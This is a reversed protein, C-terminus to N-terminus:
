EFYPKCHAKNIRSLRNRKKILLSCEGVEAVEFPGQWIPDTRNAKGKLTESKVLIKQGVSYDEIKRKPKTRIDRQAANEKGKVIKDKAKAWLENQIEQLEKIYSNPTAFPQDSHIASILRPPRGFMMHHPSYGTATHTTTNFAYSALKLRMAWQTDEELDTDTARIFESLRQHTKEVAGNAQPHGLATTIRAIGFYNAVQTMVEGCLNRGNDSLLERPLGYCLILDEVLARAIEKASCDILACFKTFKSFEDQITLGYLKCNNPYKFPGIVDYAIKENPNNCTSTIALPLSRNQRSHKSKQCQDCKAIYERIKERLKPINFYFRIAAETANCGRHGAWRGAHMESIIQNIREDDTVKELDRGQNRDALEDDDSLDSSDNSGADIEMDQDQQVAFLGKVDGIIDEWDERQIGEVKAILVDEQFNRSLEDAVYNERGPRYRIVFRYEQLKTQWRHLRSSADMNNKLWVLPRHDTHIVFEKGVLYHRLQAISWVIALCEQETTSYKVEANNLKRSIFSIPRQQGNEDEQSLVGGIGKNSADTTLHFQKRYNPFALVAEKNIGKVLQEFAVQCDDNWAFKTDKKLLKYLPLAITAYNPIFKRYYNTLGLFSRLRKTTTPIQLTELANIKEIGMGVGKPTIRHGLFSIENTLFQCKSPKVKLKYEDLRALVKKLNVSHEERTRGYVIIDDLYVYCASGILEDLVDNMIKQFNQAATQLGFALKIFEYHKGFATFGTKYQDERKIPIQHYGATLDMVTFCRANGLQDLIEDIRPLPYNEFETIENLKRFDVVMRYTSMGNEGRKPVIWIPSNFPSTSPRIIKKKLLDEIEKKIFPEFQPSLRYVKTRFPEAGPKLRIEYPKIKPSPNIELEGFVNAFEEQIEQAFIEREEVTIVLPEKSQINEEEEELLDKSVQQTGYDGTDHSLDRFDKEQGEAIEETLIDEPQKVPSRDVVDYSLPGNHELPKLEHFTPEEEVHTALQGKVQELIPYEIAPFYTEQMEDDNDFEGDYDSIGSFHECPIVEDFDFQCYMSGHDEDSDDMADEYESDSECELSFFRTVISLDHERSRKIPIVYGGIDMCGQGLDVTWNHEELINVGIYLDYPSTICDDVVYFLAEITIPGANIIAKTTGLTEVTGGVGRLEGFKGKEIGRTALRAAILSVSAGTDVLARANTGNVTVDVYRILSTRVHNNNIGPRPPGQRNGMNQTPRQRDQNYRIDSPLRNGANRNPNYNGGFNNRNQGFNNGYNNNYNVPRNQNNGYSYNYGLPRQQNYNRPYWNNQRGANYGYSNQNNNRQWNNANNDNYRVPPGQYGGRNFNQRQSENYGQQYNNRQNFDRRQGWGQNYNPRNQQIWNSNNPAAQSQQVEKVKPCQGLNHVETDCIPCGKNFNEIVRIPNAFKSPLAYGPIHEWKEVQDLVERLTEPLKQSLTFRFQQNRLGFVFHRILEQNAQQLLPYQNHEPREEVIDIRRKFVYARDYYTQIDEADGQKLTSFNGIERGLNIESLKLFSGSLYDKLEKWDKFTKNGIMESEVGELQSLVYDFLSERDEPKVRGFARDCDKVFLYAKERKGAYPKIYKVVDKFPVTNRNGSMNNNNPPQQGISHQDSNQNSGQMPDETQIGISVGEQSYGRISDPLRQISSSSDQQNVVGAAEPVGQNGVQSGQNGVQVSGEVGQGVISAQQRDVGQSEVGQVGEPPVQNNSREASNTHQNAILLERQITNLSSIQETREPNPLDSQKRTPNIEIHSGIPVYVKLRDKVSDFKQQVVPEFPEWDFEQNSVAAQRGEDFALTRRQRVGQESYRGQLKAKVKPVIPDQLLDLKEIGAALNGETVLEIRSSEAEPADFELSQQSINANAQADAGEQETIKEREEARNKRAAGELKDFQDKVEERSRFQNYSVKKGTELFILLSPNFRLKFIDVIDKVSRKKGELEVDFM